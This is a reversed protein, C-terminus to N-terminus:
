KTDKLSTLLTELWQQDAESLAPPPMSQAYNLRLDYSARDYVENAYIRENDRASHMVLANSIGVLLEDDEDDLYTRTEVEAYYTPRLQPGIRDAITLLLRQHFSSWFAPQELYPDRGPFPSPM